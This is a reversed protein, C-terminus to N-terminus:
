VQHDCVNLSHGGGGGGGGGGRYVGRSKATVTRSEGQLWGFGRKPLDVARHVTSALATIGLM